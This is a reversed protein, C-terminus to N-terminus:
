LAGGMGGSWERRTVDDAARGTEGRFEGGLEAGVAFGLEVGSAEGGFGFGAAADGIALCADGCEAFGEGLERFWVGWGGGACGRLADRAGDGDGFGLGIGGVGGRGGDGFRLAGGGAREDGVAGWGFWVGDGWGRWSRLGSRVGGGVLLGALIM